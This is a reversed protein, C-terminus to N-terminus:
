RGAGARASLRNRLPSARRPLSSVFVSLLRAIFRDLAPIVIGLVIRLFLNFQLNFCRFLRFGKQFIVRLRLSSKVLHCVQNVSKFRGETQFQQCGNMPNDILFFCRINGISYRFDIAPVVSFQHELLLMNLKDPFQEMM